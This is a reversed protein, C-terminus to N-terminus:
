TPRQAPTRKAPTRKPPAPKGQGRPASLREEIAALRRGIERLESRLERVDEYTAPRRGEIAETVSRRSRALRSEADKRMGEVSGVLDDLAGRAAERSRGASGLTAEVTREVAERLADPLESPNSPRRAM